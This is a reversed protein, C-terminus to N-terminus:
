VYKYNILAFICKVETPPKVVVDERIIRLSNVSAVISACLNVLM